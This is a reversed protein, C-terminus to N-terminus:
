GLGLPRQRFRQREVITLRGLVGQEFERLAALTREVKFAVPETGCGLIVVGAFSVGHRVALEGFDYDETLVVRREDLALAAIM